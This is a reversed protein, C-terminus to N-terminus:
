ELRIEEAIDDLYTFGDAVRRLKSALPQKFSAVHVIKGQDQVFRV